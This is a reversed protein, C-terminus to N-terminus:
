ARGAAPVIATAMRLSGLARDASQLESLSFSGTSLDGATLLVDLIEGITLEAWPDESPELGVIVSRLTERVAIEIVEWASSVSIPSPARSVAGYREDLVRHVRRLLELCDAETLRQVTIQGGNPLSIVRTSM